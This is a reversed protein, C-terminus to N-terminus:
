KSVASLNRALVRVAVRSFGEVGLTGKELEQAHPACQSGDFTPWLYRRLRIMIVLRCRYHSEYRDASHPLCRRAARHVVCSSEVEGVIGTELEQAHPACQSGDFTPWLYRRLRIMIVLRCRYHSEYRDASHPLCRRAARHVVCSSEVEGVIETELERAHPACQSEDSTPWM